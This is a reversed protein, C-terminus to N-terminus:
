DKSKSQDGAEAPGPNWGFAAVGVHLETLDDKPSSGVRRKVEERISKLASPVATELFEQLERVGRKDVTLPFIKAFTGPATEGGLIQGIHGGVASGDDGPPVMKSTLLAQVIPSDPVLSYFHETAGRRQKTDALSVAGYKELVSLHYSVVNLSAEEQRSYESPSLMGSDAEAIRLLLHVRMPHTLAKIAVVGYDGKRKPM